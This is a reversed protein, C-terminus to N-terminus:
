IPISINDLDKGFLAIGKQPVWSACEGLCLHSAQVLMTAVRGATAHELSLASM